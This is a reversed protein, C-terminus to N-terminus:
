PQGPNGSTCPSLSCISNINRFGETIELGEGLQEAPYSFPRGPCSRCSSLSLEWWPVAARRSANIIDGLAGLGESLGGVAALAKLLPVPDGGNGEPGPPRAARMRRRARTRQFSVRSGRWASTGAREVPLPRVQWYSPEEPFPPRSTETRRETEPAGPRRKSESAKETRRRSGKRKRGRGAGQKAGGWSQASFEITGQLLAEAPPASPAPRREAGGLKRHKITLGDSLRELRNPGKEMARRYRAPRTPPPARKGRQPLGAPGEAMSGSVNSAHM